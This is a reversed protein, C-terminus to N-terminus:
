SVLQTDHLRLKTNERVYSYVEIRLVINSYACARNGFNKHTHSRAEVMSFFYKCAAYARNEINERPYSRAGVMRLFHKCATYARNGTNERPYSRAAIM